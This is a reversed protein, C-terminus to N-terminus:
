FATKLSVKSDLNQSRGSAILLPNLLLLYLCMQAQKAFDFDSGVAPHTQVSLSNNIQCLTVPVFGRYFGRRLGGCQWIDRMDGWMTCRGRKRSILSDTMRNLALVDFPQLLASYLLADADILGIELSQRSQPIHHTCTM